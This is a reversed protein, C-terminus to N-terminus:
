PHFSEVVTPVIGMFHWMNRNNSGKIDRVVHGLLAIVAVWKGVMVTQHIQFQQNGIVQTQNQDWARLLREDATDPSRVLLVAPLNLNAM